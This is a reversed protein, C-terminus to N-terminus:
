AGVGVVELGHYVKSNSSVIGLCAEIRRYFARPGVAQRGRANMWAKYDDYLKGRRVPAAGDAKRIQRRLYEDVSPRVRYRNGEEQVWGDEVLTRVAEASCGRPFFFFGRNSDLAARVAVGYASRVDAPYTEPFDAVAAAVAPATQEIREAVTMCPVGLVHDAPRLGFFFKRGLWHHRDHGHHSEGLFGCVAEELDDRRGTGNSWASFLQFAADCEVLHGASKEFSERVFAAADPVLHYLGTKCNHRLLNHVVLYSAAPDDLEFWGGPGAERARLRALAYLVRHDDSFYPPLRESM